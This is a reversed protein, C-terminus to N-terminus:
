IFSRFIELIWRSSHLGSKVRFKGQWHRIKKLVEKVLCSIQLFVNHQSLYTFFCTLFHEPYTLAVHTFASSPSINVILEPLNWPCDNLYVEPSPFPWLFWTKETLHPPPSLVSVCISGSKSITFILWYLHQDKVDCNLWYQHWYQHKKM